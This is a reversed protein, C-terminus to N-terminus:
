KKRTPKKPSKPKGFPFPWLPPVILGTLAVSRIEREANEAETKKETENM